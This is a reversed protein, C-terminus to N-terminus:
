ERGFGIRIRGTATDLQGCPVERGTVRAPSPSPGPTHESPPAPSPVVLPAQPEVAAYHWTMEFARPSPLVLRIRLVADRVCAGQSTGAFPPFVRADIAEGSPAFGVTVVVNQQSEVAGCRRVDATVSDMAAIVAGGSPLDVPVGSTTPLLISTPSVPPDPPQPHSREGRDCGVVCLAAAVLTFDWRM